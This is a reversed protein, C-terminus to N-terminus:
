SRPATQDAAQALSARGLGTAEFLDVLRGASDEIDFEAEVLHRGTAPDPQPGKLTAVLAAELSAPDGPEALRGTEGNRVIEPVGSLRTAVVPLGSALAEMLVVPLGEMQGDRAVISPLVLFDAVGMLDRVEDATRSGLFRVRDGLGLEVSRAELLSRLPGDGVLDLEIRGLASSALADLLVTHGKYEQLSAVCLGRVPGELPLERPFFEFSAPDIGCHIVPVPTDRDGGFAQLFRRNYESIAVVFRAEAVKVALLSQDVFLDHAHATFSYSCGTLRGVLWATLAPYTAYHAHVHAVDAAAIWRAHSAALTVTALSRVLIRPRRVSAMVVATTARLLARPRQVAWWVLDRMSAVLSPRRLSEIWPEAGPQVTTDLPPFLSLLSLDIGPRSSVANLERLIFTESVHPFRSVIYAIKM